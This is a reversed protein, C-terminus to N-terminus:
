LINEQDSIPLSNLRKTLLDAKIMPEILGNEILFELNREYTIEKGM